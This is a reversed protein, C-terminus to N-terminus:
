LWTQWHVHTNNVNVVFIVALVGLGAFLVVLIPLQWDAWCDTNWTVVVEDQRAAAGNLPRRTPMAVTDMERNPAMEAADDTLLLKIFNQLASEAAIIVVEISIGKTALCSSGLMLSFM